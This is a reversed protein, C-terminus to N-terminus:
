LLFNAPYELSTKESLDGPFLVIGMLPSTIEKPQAKLKKLVGLDDQSIQLWQCGEVATPTTSLACLISESPSVRIMPHRFLFASSRISLSKM